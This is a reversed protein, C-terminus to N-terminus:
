FRWRSRSLGFAESFLSLTRKDPQEGPFYEALLDAMGDQDGADVGFAAELGDLSELLEDEGVLRKRAADAVMDLLHGPEHGARALDAITRSVVTVPLGADPHVTWDTDGLAARHFHVDPQRSQRRDAVTFHAGDPWLDGIGWLDAATDHSVVAAAALKADSTRDAAMLEPQLALWQAKLELEASLATATTAYVGHRVRVLVGHNTLRRLSPLDVGAAKAQASSVLGWQQSALDGVIEAAEASKM